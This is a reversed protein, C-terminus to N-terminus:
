NRLQAFPQDGNTGAAAGLGATLATPNVVGTWTPADLSSGIWVRGPTPNGPTPPSAQNSAWLVPKGNVIAATLRKDSIWDTGPIQNERVQWTVAGTGDLTGKSYEHYGTTDDDRAFAVIVNGQVRVRQLAGSRCQASTDPATLVGDPFAAWYRGAAYHLSFKYSHSFTGESMVNGLVTAPWQAHAQAGALWAGAVVAATRGVALVLARGRWTSSVRGTCGPTVFRRSVSRSLTSM